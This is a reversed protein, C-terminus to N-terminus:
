EQWGAEFWLEEPFDLPRRDGISNNSSGNSSAIYLCIIKTNNEPNVDYPIPSTYAKIEYIGSTTPTWTFNLTKPEGSNLIITQTGILPDFIQTYNVSVDFTETYNGQNKITVYIQITEKVILSKKSLSVDIIAIDHIGPRSIIKVLRTTHDYTFYISTHTANSTETLTMPPLNDVLVTFPGSLLARPITVNSFGVTGIPATVKFSITENLLSFDFDNITSNSSISIYYVKHDRVIRFPLDKPRTVSLHKLTIRGGEAVVMAGSDTSVSSVNILIESEESPSLEFNVQAISGPGRIPESGWLLITIQGDSDAITTLNWNENDTLDRKYVKTIRALSSDFTLTINVKSINSPTRRLMIPVSVTYTIATSEGVKLEINRSQSQDQLILDLGANVRSETVNFNGLKFLWSLNDGVVYSYLTAVQEIDSFGNAALLNRIPLFANQWELIIRRHANWGYTKDIYYLIFEMTEIYDGDSEVPDGHQHRLFLDHGGMLFDFLREDGFLKARGKYGLLTAYAEFLRSEPISLWFNAPPKHIRGHGMEHAIYFDGLPWTPPFMLELPLELKFGHLIEDEFGAHMINSIVGIKYDTPVGLLEEMSKFLAEYSNVQAVRLDHDIAPSQPILRDTEYIIMELSKPDYLDGEFDGKGFPGFDYTIKYRPHESPDFEELIKSCFGLEMDTERQKGGDATILLHPKMRGAPGWAELVVNGSADTTYLMVQTAPKFGEAAKPTALVRSSLSGGFELVIETGIAPKVHKHNFILRYRSSNSWVDVGPIIYFNHPSVIFTPDGFQFDYINPSWSWTREMIHFQIHGGVLNNQVDRLMFKLKATNLYSINLQISGQLKVPDSLFVLGPQSQSARKALSVRATLNQNTYLTLKNLKTIGNTDIPALWAVTNEVIRIETEDLDTLENISSNLYIKVITDPKLIIEEIPNTLVRKLVFPVYGTGKYTVAKVWGPYAFFSWEGPMVRFIAWGSANTKQIYRFYYEHNIAVVVVDSMPQNDPYLVQVKAIIPTFLETNSHGTVKPSPLSRGALGTYGPGGYVSVDLKLILLIFFLSFLFVTLINRVLRKQSRLCGM